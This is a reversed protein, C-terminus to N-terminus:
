HNFRYGLLLISFKSTKNNISLRNNSECKKNITLRNNSECKKRQIHRTDLSALFIITVKIIIVKMGFAPFIM